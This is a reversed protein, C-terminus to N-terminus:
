KQEIRYKRIIEGSKSKLGRNETGVLFLELSRLM